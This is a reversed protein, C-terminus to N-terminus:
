MRSQSLELLLVQTLVSHAVSYVRLLSVSLCAAPATHRSIGQALRRKGIALPHRAQLDVRDRQKPMITGIRTQRSRDSRESIDEGCNVRRKRAAGVFQRRVMRFKM